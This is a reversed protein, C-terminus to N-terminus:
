GVGKEANVFYMDVAGKGKAGLKGRYECDFFERVLDFTYASVNVRGSEGAGEMRSAINVTDGWIDYAYKRKGVVGAVVPGSHIGVRLNWKISSHQNRKAVFQVMELGTRVCRQAHDDVPQPLGCAALYADGITKIKELGHRDVIDDFAAFLEGLEEVMRTAPMTGAVETFGVFDTFLISTEEFRRPATHGSAKLEEMVSAPLINLLLAQSRERERSLDVTRESIKQELEMNQKEILQRREDDHQRKTNVEALRQQNLEDGLRQLRYALGLSLLVGEAAVGFEAIEFHYDRFFPVQLLGFATAFMILHGVSSFVNAALFYMALPHSARAAVIATVLTLLFTLAVSITVMWVVDELKAFPLAVLPLLQAAVILQLAIDCRPLTKPTDLYRRTFQTLGIILAEQGLMPVYFEWMPFAPWLWEITLNYSHAWIVAIGALFLVYYGHSPDRLRLFLVFNYLALAFIAGLFIGEYFLIHREKARLPLGDYVVIRISAPEFIRYDGEVRLYFTSTSTPLLEADLLFTLSRTSAMHVSREAGPLLLGSRRERFGTNIPMFMRADNWPGPEILVAKTSTSPNSLLFRIWYVRSKTIEETTKPPVGFKSDPSAVQEITLVSAPDALVELGERIVVTPGTMAVALPAADVGRFSAAFLLFSLGCFSLRCLKQMSLM